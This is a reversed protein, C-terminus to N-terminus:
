MNQRDGAEVSLCQYGSLMSDYAGTLYACPQHRSQEQTANLLCAVARAVAMIRM